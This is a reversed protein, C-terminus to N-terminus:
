KIWMQSLVPGNFQSSQYNGVRESVFTPTVDNSLPVVYSLDALRHDIATWLRVAESPNRTELAAAKKAAADLAPDCATASGWDGSVAAACDHAGHYFNSALPVDALWGGFTVQAKDTHAGFRAPKIDAHYGIDTLVSKIFVQRAHWMPGALDHVTVHMRKTGSEGVLRRATTLDPGRYKGKGASVAYPCYPQYGPFNRPLIQCTAESTPFEDGNRGVWKDRDVAYNFAQRAKLKNFPPLRTNLVVWDTSPEEQRYLRTPFRGHVSDLLGRPLRDTLQVLDAKGQEVMREATAIDTRLYHVRDVFGLQQAAYSWQKFNTNRVLDFGTAKLDGSTPKPESYGEIKYPGTGPIPTTAHDLPTGPPMPYVFLTLKYPLEPDPETLHFTVTGATDNATIGDSLDCSRPQKTCSEAGKVTWYYSPAGNAAILARHLGLIFDTAKVTTGDSYHVGKRLPFTYTLGNDTPAPITKALDPVLTSGSLAGVNRLAVLGDYVLREPYITDALYAESPDIGQMDGPMIPTAITLTGGVHSPDDLAAAAIWLKNAATTMARPSAGVPFPTGIPQGTSANIRWVTGDAENAVWITNKTAALATPGDGTSTTTVNNTVPDIQSVSKSLSNAVWVSGAALLIGRPGSGVPVGASVEKGTNKDIHTVTNDRANAVWLATGDLALGDPGNGVGITLDPNGTVPDLRQITNDGSNAVWVGTEDSVIAAPRTGVSITRVVTESDANIRSVRDANFSAVWVDRGTVTLATPTGAVPIKQVIRHHAPDVRVVTNDTRNAVWLSGAGSAIAEPALGTPLGDTVSGDSHLV